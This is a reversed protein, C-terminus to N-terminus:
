IPDHFVELLTEFNLALLHTVFSLMFGPGLLDSVSISFIHLMGTVVDASKEHEERGKLAYM